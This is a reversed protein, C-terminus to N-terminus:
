SPEPPKSPPSNECPLGRLCLATKAIPASSPDTQNPLLSGVVFAFRDACGRRSRPAIPKCITLRILESIEIACFEAERCGAAVRQSSGIINKGFTFKTGVTLRVTNRGGNLLDSFFNFHVFDVAVRIGFHPTAEWTIGGGFGYFVVTDSQSTSGNLLGNVVQAIYPNNPKATFSAHLAGLAPRAFLDSEEAQPLQIQPGAEYTYTASNYPVAIPIGLQQFIPLYPALKAQTAANLDNPLLTSHGGAYSFDGGLTLWSRVNVGFDGDFGRQALNLSPTSLYSFAGYTSFMPVDTQQAFATLSTLLVLLFVIFLTRPRM